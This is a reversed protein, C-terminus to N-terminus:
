SAGCRRFCSSPLPRAGRVHRQTPRRAERPERLMIVIAASAPDHVMAAGRLVRVRARSFAKSVLRSARIRMRSAVLEWLRSLALGARNTLPEVDQSPRDCWSRPASEADAGAGSRSYLRLLEQAQALTQHGMANLRASRGTRDFLQFGLEAELRQMQASVAAQTLGIKEGASAFTGERAVAM